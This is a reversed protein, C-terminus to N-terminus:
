ACLSRTTKSSRCTRASGGSKVRSDPGRCVTFPTSMCGRYTDALYDVDQVWRGDRTPAPAPPRSPSACGGLMSLCVGLAALMRGAPITTMSSARAEAACTGHRGVLQRPHRAPLCRHACIDNKMM